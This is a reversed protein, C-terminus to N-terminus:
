DHFLYAGDVFEEVSTNRQSTSRKLVLSMMNSSSVFTQQQLFRGIRDRVHKVVPSCIRTVRKTNYETFGDYVEIVTQCSPSSPCFCINAYAIMYFKKEMYFHIHIISSIQAARLMSTKLASSPSILCTHLLVMIFPHSFLLDGLFGVSWHCQGTRKGCTFIRSRGRRFDFGNRRSSLSYDGGRGWFACLYECINKQIRTTDIRLHRLHYNFLSLHVIDTQQGQFSLSCTTAAPLGRTDFHGSRSINGLLVVSCKQQTTTHSPASTGDMMVGPETTLATLVSSTETTTFKEVFELTAVFGNYNYPPVSPGSHNHLRHSTTVRPLPPVQVTTPQYPQVAAGTTILPLPQQHLRNLWTVRLQELPQHQQHFDKDPQHEPKREVLSM